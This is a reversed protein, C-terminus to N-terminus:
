NEKQIFHFDKEELSMYLPDRGEDQVIFLYRPEISGDELETQTVEMIKCHTMGFFDEGVIVAKAGINNEFEKKTM